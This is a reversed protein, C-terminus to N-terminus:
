CSGSHKCWAQRYEARSQHADADGAMEGTVTVDDAQIVGVRLTEGLNRRHGAGDQALQLRAALLIGGVAVSHQGTQGRSRRQIGQGIGRQQYFRDGLPQCQLVGQIGFQFRQDGVLRNDGAVGAAQRRVRQRLAHAVRFPQQDGMEPMRRVQDRQHFHHGPAGCQGMQRALHAVKAGGARQFRHHEIAGRRAKDAVPQLEGQQAFRQM